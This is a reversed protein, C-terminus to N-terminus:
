PKRTYKSRLKNRLSSDAADVARMRDRANKALHIDDLADEMIEKEAEAKGRKLTDVRMVYLLGCFAVLGVIAAYFM